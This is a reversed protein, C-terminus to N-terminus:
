SGEEKEKKYEIEYKEIMKEIEYDVLGLFKAYIKLYGKAYVLAPFLEFNNEELAEIYKLSIKTNYAVDDRSLGKLKRYEKLFEGVRM